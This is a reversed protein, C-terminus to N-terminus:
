IADYVANGIVDSVKCGIIKDRSINLWKEYRKNVYQYCGLSDIEAILSPTADSIIQLQEKQRELDDIKKDLKRSLADVHQAEIETDDIQVQKINVFDQNENENIVENIIKLLEGPEEPKIIFRVAGLALAFEQDVKETYTATYFVFPINSLQQSKKVKKCFEFGDMEPMLIDSIIMGPPSALAKELADSGNVASDVEYGQVELQDVLLIRADETDEVVLIKM